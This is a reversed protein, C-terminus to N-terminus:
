FNLNFEHLMQMLSDYIQERDGSHCVLQGKDNVTIIQLKQTNRDFFEYRGETNKVLFFDFNSNRKKKKQDIMMELSQIMKNKRNQNIQNEDLAALFNRGRGIVFDATRRGARDLLELSSIRNSTDQNVAQSYQRLHLINERAGTLGSYRMFHPSSFSDGAATVLLKQGEAGTMESFPNEVRNQEVDFRAAFKKDMNEMTLTEGYGYSDAVTQFFAYNVEKMLHDIRKKREAPDTVGEQTFLDNLTSDLLDLRQKLAQPLEMGIYILGRNEFTRTQFFTHNPDVIDEFSRNAFFANLTDIVQSKVKEKFPMRKVIEQAQNGTLKGVFRNFFDQNIEVMGRFDQFVNFKKTNDKRKGFEFAPAVAKPTQQKTYWSVVGYHEAKTVPVFSPLYRDRMASSKGGACILCDIEREEVQKSPQKNRGVEAAETYEAVLKFKGEPSDPSKVQTLEHAAFIEVDSPSDLMSVLEMVRINLIAELDMTAIEGFGDERIIGKHNQDVFTSYYKEGLYFKLMSMWKPDLRVIQSRDYLGSRKEFLSVKSGAEYQTLALLLGTPGGGEIAVRAHHSYQQHSKKFSEIQAMDIALGRLKDLEGAKKLGSRITEDVFQNPASMWISSDFFRGSQLEVDLLLKRGELILQLTEDLVVHDRMESSSMQLFKDNLAQLYTPLAQIDQVNLKELKKFIDQKQQLQHKMEELKHNITSISVELMHNMTSNQSFHHRMVRLARLDDLTVLERPHGHISPEQTAKEYINTLVDECLFQVFPNDKALIAFTNEDDMLNFLFNRRMAIEVEYFGGRQHSERFYKELQQHINHLEQLNAKVSPDKMNGYTSLYLEYEVLPKADFITIPKSFKGESFLEKFSKLSKAGSQLKQTIKTRDVYDPSSQHQAKLQNKIQASYTFNVTGEGVTMGQDIKLLQKLGARLEQPIAENNMLVEMSFTRGANLEIDLLARKIETRDLANSGKQNDLNALKEFLKEHKKLVITAKYMLDEVQKTVLRVQQTDQNEIESDSLFNKFKKLINMQTLNIILGPNERSISDSLHNPSTVQSLTSMFSRNIKLYYSPNDPFDEALRSSGMLINLIATHMIHELPQIHDQQRTGTLRQKLQNYVHEIELMVKRQEETKQEGTLQVFFEYELIPALDDYSLSELHHDIKDKVAEFARKKEQAIKSLTHKSITKSPDITLVSYSSIAPTLPDAFITQTAEQIKFSKDLLKAEKAEVLLHSIREKLNHYRENQLLHNAQKEFRKTLSKQDSGWLEWFKWKSFSYAEVGGSQTKRLGIRRGERLANQIHSLSSEFEFIKDQQNFLNNVM